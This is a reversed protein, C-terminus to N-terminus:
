RQTPKRGQQEGGGRRLHGAQEGDGGTKKRSRKATTSRGRAAATSVSPLPRNLAEGMRRLQPIDVAGSGNSPPPATGGGSSRPASYAFAADGLKLLAEASPLERGQESDPADNRRLRDAGKQAWEAIKECTRISVRRVFEKVRGDGALRDFHEGAREKIVHMLNGFAGRLTQIRQWEPLDQLAPAHEDAQRLATNVAGAQQQPDRTDQATHQEGPPEPAAVPAQPVSPATAAATGEAPTKPAASTGPVADALMEQLVRLDAEVAAFLDAETGKEAPVTETWAERVAAFETVIDGPEVATEGSAEPGTM